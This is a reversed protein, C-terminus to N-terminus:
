RWGDIGNLHILAKWGWALVGLALLPLLYYRAPLLRLLRYAPRGTAAVYFGAWVCSAAIFALAFGMPQVYLSALPNGRAFWAFSTTFGCSPCPLGTTELFQCSNLGLAQHSGIGSPSPPLRAAVLLVSLCGVAICLALIRPGRALRDVSGPATARSYIM